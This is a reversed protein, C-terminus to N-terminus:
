FPIDYPNEYSCSHCVGHDVGAELDGGCVYCSDDIFVVNNVAESEADQRPVDSYFSFLQKGTEDLLACHGYEAAYEQAVDSAQEIHDFHGIVGYRSLVRYIM